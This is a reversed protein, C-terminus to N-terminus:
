PVAKLVKLFTAPVNEMSDAVHADGTPVEVETHFTAMTLAM